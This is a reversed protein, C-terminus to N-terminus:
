RAAPRRIEDVGQDVDKVLGKIEAMAERVGQLANATNSSSSAVDKALQLVQAAFRQADEVRQQQVTNNQRWLFVLGIVAAALVPGVIPLASLSSIVPDM